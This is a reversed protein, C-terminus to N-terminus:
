GTYTSGAGALGDALSLMSAAHYAVIDAIRYRGSTDSYYLSYDDVDAPWITRHQTVWRTFAGKEVRKFSADPTQDIWDSCLM